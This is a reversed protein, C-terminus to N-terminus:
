TGSVAGSAPTPRDVQQSALHPSPSPEIAPTPQAPAEQVAPEPAAPEPLKRGDFLAELEEGEVSENKILYEAIEM